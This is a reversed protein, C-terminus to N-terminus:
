LLLYRLRFVPPLRHRLRQEYCITCATGCGPNIRVRTVVRQRPATEIPRVFTHTCIYVYLTYICAARTGLALRVQEISGTAMFAKPM